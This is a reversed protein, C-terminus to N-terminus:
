SERASRASRAAPDAERVIPDLEDRKRRRPGLREAQREDSAHDAPRGTMTGGIPASASRTRAVSAPQSQVSASHRLSSAISARIASSTAGQSRDVRECRSGRARPGNSWCVTSPSSAFSARAIRRTHARRVRRARREGGAAHAVRQTVDLQDGGPHRGDGGGTGREARVPTEDRRRRGRLAKTSGKDPRAMARSVGAFIRPTIFRRREHFRSRLVPLPDPAAAAMLPVAARDVGHEAKAARLSHIRPADSAGNWRPSTNHCSPCPERRSQPM